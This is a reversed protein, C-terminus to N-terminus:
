TPLSSEEIGLTPTLAISLRGTTDDTTFTAGTEPPTASVFLETAGEREIVV